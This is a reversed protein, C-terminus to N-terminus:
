SQAGGASIYPSIMDCATEWGATIDEPRHADSNVIVKCREELAIEWFRRRPYRSVVGEDDTAIPRKRFGNTNIELPLDLASACQAIDRSAATFDDTWRTCFNGFLDPHAAFTFLGSEAARIWFDVYSRLFVADNMKEYDFPSQFSGDAAPAYHIGMVLYEIKHRGLLEDRYWSACSDLWECEMGCHIELQPFDIKARDIDAIYDDLEDLGMRHHPWRGDPMPVHDSFGLTELGAAVAARCYDFVTGTAHKCRSTHTHWNAAPRRSFAFNINERISSVM